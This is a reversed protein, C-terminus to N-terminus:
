VSGALGRVPNAAKLTWGELVCTRRRSKANLGEWRGVIGGTSHGRSVEGCRVAVERDGSDVGGPSCAFRSWADRSVWPSRGLYSWCGEGRVRRMYTETGQHCLAEGDVAPEGPGRRRLHSEHVEPRLNTM